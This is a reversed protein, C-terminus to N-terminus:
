EEWEVEVEIVRSAASESVLIAIMGASASRIWEDESAPIWEYFGRENFTPESYINSGPTGVSYATTGNKITVTTGASRGEPDKNLATGSTGGTGATTINVVELNVNQDDVAVM